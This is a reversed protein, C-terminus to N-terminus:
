ATSGSLQMCVVLGVELYVYERRTPRQLGQATELRQLKAYMDPMTDQHHVQQLSDATRIRPGQLGSQEQLPCYRASTYRSKFDVRKPARSHRVM